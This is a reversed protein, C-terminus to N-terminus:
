EEGEPVDCTVTYVREISRPFKLFIRLRLVTLSRGSCSVQPHWTKGLATVVRDTIPMNCACCIGKSTTKVGQRDMESQLNGLMADLSLAPDEDDQDNVKDNIPSTEKVPSINRTGNEIEEKAVIEKVINKEVNKVESPQKAVDEVQDAISEDRGQVVFAEGKEKAAKFSNLSSMLEDLEQTATSATGHGGLNNNNWIGCGQYNWQSNPYGEEKGTM